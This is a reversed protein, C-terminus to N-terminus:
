QAPSHGRDVGFRCRPKRERTSAPRACNAIGPDRGDCSPVDRALDYPGPVRIPDVARRTWGRSLPGPRGRAMSPPRSRPRTPTARGTRLEALRQMVVYFVPVFFVALVTSAIMGGFVATGLAQRSAAGAGTANVLPFVGLIFAFSTM